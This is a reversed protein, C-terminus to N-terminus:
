PQRPSSSLTQFPSLTFLKARHLKGSGQSSCLIGQMERGVDEGLPMKIKLCRAILKCDM